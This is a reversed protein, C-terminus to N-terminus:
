GQLCARIRGQATYCVWAGAREQCGTTCDPAPEGTFCAQLVGTGDGCRSSGGAASDAFCPTTCNSPAAAAAPSPLQTPGESAPAGAAQTGEYGKAAFLAAVDGPDLSTNFIALRAISGSFFRDPDLDNRGCLVIPGPLAMPAGATAEFREGDTRTYTVGDKVQAALAGDIYVQYGNGGGPQTTITVMHWTDVFESVNRTPGVCGNSSICGDSDLFLFGTPDDAMDTSDRILTRMVGFALHGPEATYLHVRSGAQGAQNPGSPSRTQQGTSHSYIYEVEAGNIVDAKVWLSIAFPGGAGYEVGPITVYSSGDRNCTLVSGFVPDDQWMIENGEGQYVGEPVTSALSGGTLNFYAVPEPLAGPAAGLATTAALLLAFWLATKM